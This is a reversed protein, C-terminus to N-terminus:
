SSSGLTEYPAGKEDKTKVLEVNKVVKKTVPDIEIM